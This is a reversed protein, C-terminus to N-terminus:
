EYGYLRLMDGFRERGPRHHKPTFPTGWGGIQGRYFSFADPNFLRGAVDRPDAGAVGLFDSIRTIAQAQAEASGGGEPGVLEEFSTKCVNPHNLLWFM